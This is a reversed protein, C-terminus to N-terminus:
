FYITEGNLEKNWTDMQVELISDNKFYPLADQSAVSTMSATNQTFDSTTNRLTKDYIYSKDKLHADILSGDTKGEIITLQRAKNRVWQDSKQILTNIVKKVADNQFKSEAYSILLQDVYAVQGLKAVPDLEAAYYRCKVSKPQDYLFPQPSGFTTVSDVKYGMKMTDAVCNNAIIGGQSHGVFHITSGAPITKRILNLVTEEYDTKLGLFAAPNNVWGNEDKAWNGFDLLEGNTGKILVIYDKEGNKLIVIPTKESTYHILLFVLYADSGPPPCEWKKWDELLDPPIQDEYPIEKQNEKETRPGSTGTGSTNKETPKQTNEIDSDKKKTSNKTKKKKTKGFLNEFLRGAEGALLVARGLIDSFWSLVTKKLISKNDTTEFKEARATLDKARANLDSSRQTGTAYLSAGIAKVKPGFQGDYSPASNAAQQVAKNIKQLDAAISDISGAQQKVQSPDIRIM